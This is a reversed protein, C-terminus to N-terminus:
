RYDCLQIRTTETTRCEESPGQEFAFDLDNLGAFIDNDPLILNLDPRNSNHQQQMPDM